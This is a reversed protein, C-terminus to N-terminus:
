IVLPYTYNPFHYTPFFPQVGMKSSWRPLPFVYSGFASQSPNLLSCRRCKRAYIKLYRTIGILALSSRWSSQGMGVYTQFAVLILSPITPSKCGRHDQYSLYSEQPSGLFLSSDSFSPFDNGIGNRTLRINQQFLTHTM